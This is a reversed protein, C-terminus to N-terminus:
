YKELFDGLMFSELGSQTISYYEAKGYQPDDEVWKVRFKVCDHEIFQHLNKITVADHDTMHTDMWMLLEELTVEKHTVLIALIQEQNPTMTPKFTPFPKDM